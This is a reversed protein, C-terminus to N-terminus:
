TLFSFFFETRILHCIIYVWTSHLVTSIEPHRPAKIPQDTISQEMHSHGQWSSKWGVVLCVDFLAHIHTHSEIHVCVCVHARSGLSHRFDSASSCRRCWLWFQLGSKKLVQHCSPTMESAAVAFLLLFFFNIPLPSSSKKVEKRLFTMNEANCSVATIARTWVSTCHFVNECSNSDATITQKM